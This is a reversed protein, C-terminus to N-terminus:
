CDWLYENTKGASVSGYVGTEGASVSKFEKVDSTSMLTVQM